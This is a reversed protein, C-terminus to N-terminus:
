SPSGGLLELYGHPNPARMHDRAEQTLDQPGECFGLTSNM